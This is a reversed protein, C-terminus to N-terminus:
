HNRVRFALVLLLAYFVNWGATVKMSSSVPAPSRIKEFFDEASWDFHGCSRFGDPPANMESEDGEKFMMAMGEVQHIAIHCHVFWWGPNDAVYRVVVYGGVPVIITDKMPPNVLNLGPINDGAWNPDRWKANNCREQGGCDIDENDAIYKGNADYQAFGTKVVYFHHGHIHVPHATGHLGNGANSGNGVAEYVFNGSQVTFVERGSSMCIARNCLPSFITRGSSQRQKSVDKINSTELTRAHIWYNGPNQSAEIYFDFREGSNIIVSDAIVTRLRNGDTAIVHLKHSDISVDFAFMMAANIVRFRYMKMREVTFTEVPILHNEIYEQKYGTKRSREYTYFQGKGNILASHFPTVGIDTGDSQRTQYFCKTTDNYGPSFRQMEALIRNNTDLSNERMWDHLIMIFEGDYEPETTEEVEASTESENDLQVESSDPPLVILAGYLGDTRQTGLHSHYWHTGPPTALFRYTFTEGPNIPCHSVGAVGDMWPTHRQEMGHWHITIGEMLLANTVRVVVQTGNKVIINPGPLQGNITTAPGYSGDATIVKSKETESLLDRRSCQNLDRNRKYFNGNFTVVPLGAEANEDYIVMTERHEIKWSYECVTGEANCDGNPQLM